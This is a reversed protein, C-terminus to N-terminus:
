APPLEKLLSDLVPELSAIARELEILAAPVRDLQQGRAKAEVVFAAAQVAKAGMMGAAGKLSHAARLLLESDTAALSSRMEKMLKPTNQRFIEVLEAVLNLDGRTRALLEERNLVELDTGPPTPSGGDGQAQVIPESPSSEVMAYLDNLRVPKSLYGDMGAALCRERDGPMAHATMAIIRLSKHTGTEAQRIQRTAELGDLVPMQVDMLVVDFRTCAVADVAQQGDDVVVVQHGRAKLMSTAVRQNVPNDEALLVHLAGASEEIAATVGTASPGAGTTLGEFVQVQGDGGRHFWSSFVFTAGQGPQSRVEIRGGMLGVLRSSIALGLGSGGYRRTTSGDAQTFAEFIARQRDAPIGIGSDRVSAILEVEDSTCTGVSVSVSVEGKETFKIGNAILNMLVQGFRQADGILADPVVEDVTCSLSIGKQDAPVQMIDVAGALVARLGFSEEALDLRGAEVKAFDLIDDVLNLLADASARVMQLQKRVEPDLDARLIMETLGLVGNLPTRFEHSMNALFESKSASAAKARDRERVMQGVARRRALESYVLLGVGILLPLLLLLGFKWQELYLLAAVVFLSTFLVAGFGLGNLVRLLYLKEPNGSKVM